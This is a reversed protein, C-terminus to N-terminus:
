CLIKETLTYGKQKCDNELKQRSSNEEFVSCCHIQRGNKQALCVASTLETDNTLPGLINCLKQDDDYIVFYFPKQM